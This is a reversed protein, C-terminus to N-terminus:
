NRQERCKSCYKQSHHTKIFPEGCGACKVADDTVDTHVLKGDEKTVDALVSDPPIEYDSFGCKVCRLRGNELEEWEECGCQPCKVCEPFEKGDGTATNAAVFEKAKALVNEQECAGCLQGYGKESPCGCKPCKGDIYFCKGAKEEPDEFHIPTSATDSKYQEEDMKECYQKEDFLYLWEDRSLTTVAQRYGAPPIYDVLDKGFDKGPKNSTGIAWIGGTDTDLTLSKLKEARLIDGSIGAVATSTILRVSKLPIQM